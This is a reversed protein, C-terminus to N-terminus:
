ASAIVLASVSTAAALIPVLTSLESRHRGRNRAFPFWRGAHPCALGFMLPPRSSRAIALTASCDDPALLWRAIWVDGVCDRAEAEIPRAGEGSLM